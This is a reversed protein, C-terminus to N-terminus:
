GLGPEADPPHGGLPTGSIPRIRWLPFVDLGRRDASNNWIDPFEGASLSIQIRVPVGGGLTLTARM